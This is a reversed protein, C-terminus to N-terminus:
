FCDTVSIAATAQLIAQSSSAVFSANKADGNIAPGDIEVKPLSTSGVVAQAEVSLTSDYTPNQISDGHFGSSRKEWLIAIPNRDSPFNETATAGNNDLQLNNKLFERIEASDPSYFDDFAAYVAKEEGSNAKINDSISEPVICTTDVGNVLGSKLEKMCSVRVDVSSFDGLNRSAVFLLDRIM